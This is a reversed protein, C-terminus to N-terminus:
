LGLVTFNELLWQSLHGELPEVLYQGLLKPNPQALWSEPLLLICRVQFFWCWNAWAPLLYTTYTVHIFSWSSAVSKAHPLPKRIETLGTLLTYTFWTVQSFCILSSFGTLQFSLFLWSGSLTSIIHLAKAHWEYKISHQYLSKFFWIWVVIIMAPFHQGEQFASPM